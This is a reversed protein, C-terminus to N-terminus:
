ECGGVSSTGVGAGACPVVVAVEESEIVVDLWFPLKPGLTDGVWNSKGISCAFRLWLPLEGFEFGLLLGACGEGEGCGVDFGCPVARRERLRM